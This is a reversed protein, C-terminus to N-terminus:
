YSLKPDVLGKNVNIKSLKSHKNPVWVQSRPVKTLLESQRAYGLARNNNPMFNCAIKGGQLGGPGM